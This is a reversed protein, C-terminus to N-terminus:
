SNTTPGQASVFLQAVLSLLVVVASGIVNFWLFGIDSSFFLTIVTAQAVIAAILVATAQVRRVFFAVLFIGLVTGYFISGLINVAEILNDLLSAFGAFAVAVVGWLATFLKSVRVDRESSPTQKRIRRYLDLTTTSGLATLESATSSMAACLIVAVLLGVLGSPVYNLVFTLFIYDSDKTEANPVAAKILTKAQKRVDSVETAAAQLAAKEDSAGGGADLAAVYANAASKQRDFAADYRDGLAELEPAYETSQAQQLAPANFFIPPQTFLYFVFVMVGSMLIVLQMPVKLMGNLLLGLVISSGIIGGIISHTTSVPYGRKTAFLLWLAAALLASMMIYIFDMPDLAIESLDVINGRITNTVAGGAIVAGSVEFIAAVALAQKMSLTGAGVSTGFSNAVDNGGINFAMFMGFFSAIVFILVNSYNTYDLGWVMFYATMCVLLLAFFYSLRDFKHM